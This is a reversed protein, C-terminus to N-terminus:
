TAARVGSGALRPRPKGAQLMSEDRRWLQDKSGAMPSQWKAVRASARSTSSSARAWTSVWFITLTWHPTRRRAQEEM